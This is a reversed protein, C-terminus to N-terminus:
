VDEKRVSCVAYAAIGKEEGTFGLGEETKGKVNVRQPSIGAAAALRCVMEKAYPFIKPRQMVLTVDINQPVFGKQRLFAATDALLDLSDAGKWQPDTDPYRRGIDGEAAAGLLADIVAHVLADGDSHGEPGWEFPIQVGGLICPRGLVMRHVDYGFGFLTM